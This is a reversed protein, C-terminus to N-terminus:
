FYDEFGGTAYFYPPQPLPRPEPDHPREVGDLGGFWGQHDKNYEYRRAQLIRNQEDIASKWEAAWM